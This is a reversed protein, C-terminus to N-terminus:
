YYEHNTYEFETTSVKTSNDEQSDASNNENLYNSQSNLIAAIKGSTYETEETTSTIDNINETVTTKMDSDNNNEQYRIDIDYLKTSKEIAETPIVPNETAIDYTCNLNSGNESNSRVDILDIYNPLCKNKTSVQEPKQTTESQNQEIKNTNNTNNCNVTINNTDYNSRVDIMDLYNPLCNEVSTNTSNYDADMTTNPFTLLESKNQRLIIYKTNNIKDCKVNEITNNCLLVINEIVDVEQNSEYSDLTKKPPGSFIKLILESITQNRQINNNLQTSKNAKDVDLNYKNPSYDLYFKNIKMEISTLIHYINKIFELTQQLKANNIGSNSDHSSNLIKIIFSNMLNIESLQFQTQNNTKNLQQQFNQLADLVMQIQESNVDFNPIEQLLALIIELQSRQNSIYDMIESNGNATKQMLALLNNTIHYINKRVNSDHTKILQTLQEIDKPGVSTKNEFIDILKELVISIQSELQSEDMQVRHCSELFLNQAIMVNEFNSDIKESLEQLKKNDISSDSQVGQKEPKRGVEVMLARLGNQQENRTLNTIKSLSQLTNELTDSKKWLESYLDVMKNAYENLDEDFEDKALRILNSTNNTQNLLTTVNQQLNLVGTLSKNTSELFNITQGHYRKVFKETNKLVIKTSEKTANMVNEEIGTCTTKLDDIAAVADALEAEMDADRITLSEEMKELKTIIMERGNQSKISGIDIQGEINVLKHNIREYTADIKRVIRDKTIDDKFNRTSINESIKDLEMRMYVQFRSLDKEINDIKRGYYDIKGSIAATCQMNLTNELNRLKDEISVLMLHINPYNLDNRFTREAANIQTPGALVNHNLVKSSKPNLFFATDDANFVWTATLHDEVEKFWNKIKAADVAAKSCTFNQPVRLLLRLHRRTFAKFWKRGPKGMSFPNEQNLSKLHEVSDQLQDKTIPFGAKSM